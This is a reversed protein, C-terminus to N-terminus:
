LVSAVVYAAWAWSAGTLLVKGATVPVVDQSRYFVIENVLTSVFGVIVWTTVVHMMSYQAAWLLAAVTVAARGAAIYTYSGFFGLIKALDFNIPTIFGMVVVTAFVQIVPISARWQEGLVAPVLAPALLFVCVSYALLLIGAINTFQNYHARMRAADSRASLETFVVQQAQPVAAAPVLFALLNGVRYLGLAQPGLARGVIFSDAHTVLYGFLRQAVIHKGLPMLARALKWDPNLKLGSAAGAALAVAGAVHGLLLGIVLAHVGFGGHALLLGIGGTVLPTVTQRLALRRYHQMTLCATTMPDSVANVFAVIGALPLVSQLVPLAFLGAALPALALTIAYFVAATLLQATFQLSIEPVGGRRVVIAQTMGWDKAIDFIALWAVAIAYAGFDEPILLRAILIQFLPSLLKGAVNGAINWGVNSAFRGAGRASANGGDRARTM